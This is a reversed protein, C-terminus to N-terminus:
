KVLVSFGLHSTYNMVKIYELSLCIVMHFVTILVVTTMLRIYAKSLWWIFKWGMLM